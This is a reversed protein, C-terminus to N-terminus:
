QAGRRRGGTRPKAPRRKLAEFGAMSDVSIERRRGRAPVSGEPAPVRSVRLSPSDQGAGGPCDTRSDRSLRDQNSM